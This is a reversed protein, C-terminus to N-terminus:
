TTTETSQDASTTGVQDGPQSNDDKGGCGALASLVLAAALAALVRRMTSSRDSITPCRVVHGSRSMAWRDSCSHDRCLRLESRLSGEHKVVFGAAKEVRRPM